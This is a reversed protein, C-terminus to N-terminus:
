PAAPVLRRYQGTGLHARHAHWTDLLPWRAVEATLVTLTVAHSVVLVAGDGATAPVARLFDRVRARVDLLSEGGPLRVTPDRAWRALATEGGEAGADTRGGRLAGWDIERLRLDAMVPLEPCLARRLLAASQRARAADSTYVASVRPAEDLLREATRRVQERGVDDLPIGGSVPLRRRANADTRGHRVVILEM